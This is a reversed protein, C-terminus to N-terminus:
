KRAFSIAVTFSPSTGGITRIARLYRRVTTGPAVEVRQSTAATAQTFTVLDVWVSNDVSHQVKGDFTPSTGSATTIHLHASGGDATAVLNDVGTGNGTATLPTLPQLIVGSELGSSSQFEANEMLLGSAPDSVTLNLLDAEALFCYNGLVDANLPSITLIKKTTSGLAARLINDVKNVTAGDHEYFGELSIKGMNFGDLIYTKATDQFGTSDFPDVTLQGDFTKFLNSFDYKDILISTNIGRQKAM